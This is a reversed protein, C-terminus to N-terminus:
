KSFAKLLQNKFLEKVLEAIKIHTKRNIFEAVERKNEEDTAGISFTPYMGGSTPIIWAQGAEIHYVAPRQMSGLHGQKKGGFTSKIAIANRFLEERVVCMQEYDPEKKITTLTPHKFRREINDPKPDPIIPVYTDTASAYVPETEPATAPNSATPVAAAACATVSTRPPAM